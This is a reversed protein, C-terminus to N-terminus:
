RRRSTLSQLTTCTSPWPGGAAAGAEPAPLRPPPYRPAATGGESGCVSVRIIKLYRQVIYTSFM